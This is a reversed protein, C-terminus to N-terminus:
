KGGFQLSYHSRRGSGQMKQGQNEATSSGLPAYPPSAPLSGSALAPTSRSKRAFGGSALCQNGKRHGAQLPGGVITRVWLRVPEPGDWQRSASRQRKQFPRPTLPM